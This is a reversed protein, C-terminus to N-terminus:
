AWDESNAETAPFNQWINGHTNRKFPSVVGDMKLHTVTMKKLMLEM